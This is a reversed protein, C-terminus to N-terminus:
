QNGVCECGVVDTVSPRGELLKKEDVVRQLRKLEVELRDYESDLLSPNALCYYEHNAKRIQRDLELYRKEDATQNDIRSITKEIERLRNLDDECPM